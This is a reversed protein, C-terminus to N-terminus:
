VNAVVMILLEIFCCSVKYLVDLYEGARAYREDHEIQDPLGHNRAASSLYSTVINVAVRGKTLHDLTSFRRAFLYPADYTVSATVGFTLNTTVAACASVTEFLRLCLTLVLSFRISLSPFLHSAVFFVTLALSTDMGRGVRM